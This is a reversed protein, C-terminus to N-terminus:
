LIGEKLTLSEEVMLYFLVIAVSRSRGRACNVLVNGGKGKAAKIKKAVDVFLTLQELPDGM